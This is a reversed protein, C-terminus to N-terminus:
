RGGELATHGLRDVSPLHPAVAEAFSTVVQGVVAGPEDAWVDAHFIEVEVGGRYGGAIVAARARESSFVEYTIM